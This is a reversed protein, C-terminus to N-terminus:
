QFVELNLWLSVLNNNNNNSTDTRRCYAFFLNNNNNTEQQKKNIVRNPLSRIEIRADLKRMPLRNPVRFVIQFM